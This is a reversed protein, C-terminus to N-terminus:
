PNGGQTQQSNQPAGNQQSPMQQNRSNDNRNGNGNDNGFPQGQGNGPQQGNMGGMGMSDVTGNIGASRLTQTMAERAQQMTSLATQIATNTSSNQQITAWLNTQNEASLADAQDQTLQGADALAQMAAKRDDGTKQTAEYYAKLQAATWASQDMDSLSKEAKRLATYSDVDAQTVVGANVLDALVADEIQEYLSVANNYVTKQDDTLSSLDVAGRGQGRGFGMANGTMAQSTATSTADAAATATGTATEAMAAFPIAAALLVALATAALNKNRVGHRTLM